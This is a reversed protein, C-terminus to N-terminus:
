NWLFYIQMHIHQLSELKAGKGNKDQFFIVLLCTNQYKKKKKKTSFIRIANPYNFRSSREYLHSYFQLM